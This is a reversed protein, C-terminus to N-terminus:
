LYKLVIAQELCRGIKPLHGSDMNAFKQFYNCVIALVHKVVSNFHEYPSYILVYVTGFRDFSDVLDAFIHFKMTKLCKEYQAVFLHWFSTEFDRISSMIEDLYDTPWRGSYNNSM